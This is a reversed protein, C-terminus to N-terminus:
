MPTLTWKLWFAGSDDVTVSGLLTPESFLWVDARSDEKFGDGSVRAPEDSVANFVMRAARAPASSTDSETPEAEDQDPGTSVSTSWNDGETVALGQNPLVTTTADTPEGASTVSSEGPEVVPTEGTERDVVPAPDAQGVNVALEILVHAGDAYRTLLQLTHTGIPLAPESPLSVEGRYTTYRGVTINAVEVWEDDGLIIFAKLSEGPLLGAGYLVGSSGAKASLQSNGDFSFNSWRPGYMAMTRGFRNLFDAETEVGGVFVRPSEPPEPVKGGRLIPKDLFISGPATQAARPRPTVTASPAPAEVAAVTDDDDDDDDDNRAPAPPTAAAPLSFARVKGENANSGGTGGDVVMPAARYGSGVAVRYGDSSLAVSSGFEDDANEGDIASGLQSWMSGNWDYVTVSGVHSLNGGKGDNRVAGIAVRSADASLSVAFGFREQAINGDMDSGLQTWGDVGDGDGTVGDNRYVRVIGRDTNTATDPVSHPIGVAVLSGDASLSVSTGAEDGVVDSDINSGVQTWTAGILDYVRVRGMGSVSIDVGSRADFGSLPAGIAVRSGDASLSVAFGSESDIEEGDIDSGLQTWASGDWSYVRVHGAESGSGGAGDNSPAGIAVRSGDSSVSVSLGSKDGQEEGDIDGGLKDWADNVSDYEYVRVHGRDSDHGPAGIAVRSGDTSLSVSLGLEDGGAEGDIDAGVQTWASGDWDFVRVHGKSSDHAPSGVAMRSGDASMSVSTGLEAGPAEGDIEQGLQSVGTSSAPPAGVPLGTVLLGSVIVVALGKVSSNM